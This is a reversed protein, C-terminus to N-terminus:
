KKVAENWFAEYESLKKSKELVPINDEAIPLFRFRAAPLWPIIELSAIRQVKEFYAIAENKNQFGQMLILQINNELPLPTIKLGASSYNERHYRAFANRAESAYVPDVDNLIMMVSYRQNPLYNFGNLSFRLNAAAVSDQKRKELIKQVAILSDRRKEELLRQISALSDKRQQEAMKQAFAMSDKRAQEQQKQFVLALSDKRKGEAMQLEALALSDAKRKAIAVLNLSDAIRKKQAVLQLSDAKRKWEFATQLSDAIRKEEALAALREQEIRNKEAQILSDPVEKPKFNENSAKVVPGPLNKEAQNKALKNDVSVTKVKQVSDPQVNVVVPATIEPKNQALASTDLQLNTLYEEIEKRRSLVSKLNEAKPYINSASHDRILANLLQLAQEDNREKIYYVSEIYLLQPTWFNKGYQQDAKAKEAVAQEFKGSLFLDYVNEYAKTAKEKVLDEPAKRNNRQSLKSAMESGPYENLIVQRYRNAQDQLGLKWYCYYMNALIDPRFTSKPFKILIEEYAKLALPYDELKRLYTNAVEVMSREMSDKSVQLAPETLPLGKLLKEVTLEGDEESNNVSNEPAGNNQFSLSKDIASLRRWQDANPRDGWKARFDSLGRQRAATNYFYWEGKGSGAFLDTPTSELSNLNNNILSTSKRKGKQAAKVMKELLEMREEEPMAALKQLSDQRQIVELERVLIELGNKRSLVLDISDLSPDDLSLSDYASKAAPYNGQRFLANGLELLTKNKLSINESNYRLSRIMSQILGPDNKREKDIIGATFYIIDRYAFYNDKRAMKYLDNLNQNIYDDGGDRNLRIANLRAYIEQIPNVTSKMSRLYWDSALQKQASKEYLQGILFEWRARITYNEASPLAKELYVAASDWTGQQYFYFANMQHLQAQLRDPFGPDLKLAQILGAAEGMKKQEIATRILWLLAENRSPPDSLARKLINNKEKTAIAFANGGESSNSAIVRAYGDKERPAFAYNIFQFSIYASDLDNRFFYAQGILFYLNDIWDNRLDHLVIGATAKYIVSDLDTKAAATKNPSYNYFPLLQTFDDVHSQQAARVVADLKQQANFNFNFHSVTNQVFRRKLGMKKTFTKEYGLSRNEYKKPKELKPDYDPQAWCFHSLVLLGLLGLYHILFKVARMYCNYM